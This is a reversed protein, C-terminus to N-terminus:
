IKQRTRRARKGIKTVHQPLLGRHRSGAFLRLEVIEQAIGNEIDQQGM